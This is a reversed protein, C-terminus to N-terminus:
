PLQSKFRWEGVGPNEVQSSIGVVQFWTNGPKFPYPQGDEFTLFLVSDKAPRNWRVKYGQGNRFAYGEGSGSLRIDLAKKNGIIEASQHPLFLIVVNDAAIQQGTMGDVLPAFTEGQGNQDEQTDQSRLYRSNEPDYDWRNYSSISYRTTIQEGPTGGDPSMDSFFMGDLKQRTNPINKHLAFITLEPSSTFLFNYGNPDLRCMPPCNRSGELVLRDAYDSNFFRDLVYKAAGGFAFLTKYMQIINEDFLRASRIPGIQSADTGYFIANLRTLGDNQYYDYVLDANSVGYVPRGGRPYLQVKVAMPRRNLANTDSVPLGTLPNITEPFHDPGITYPTPSVTPTQTATAKETPTLSAPLTDTAIITATAAPIPKSAPLGITPDVAVIPDTSIAQDADPLRTSDSIGPTCASAMIGCLVLGIILIKM